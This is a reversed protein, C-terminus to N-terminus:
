GTAFVVAEGSQNMSGEIARVMEEWTAGPALALDLDLAYVRFLYAEAEGTEPCPGRYGISGFDNTGQVAHLPSEVVEGEPFGEPIRPVAPLNWLVWAVKSPGEEPSTTALIALSKINPLIGEVRIPPSRNAGKCTYDLPFEDFDLKVVLKQTM